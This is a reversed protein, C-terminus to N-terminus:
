CTFSVKVDLQHLFTDEIWGINGAPTLIWSWGVSEELVLSLENIRIVGSVDRSYRRAYLPLERREEEAITDYIERFVVLTGPKM